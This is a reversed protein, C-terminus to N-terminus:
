YWGSYRSFHDTTLSGDVIEMLVLQGHDLYYITADGFESFDLTVPVAFTQEPVLNLEIWEGQEWKVHMGVQGGDPVAGEPVTLTVPGAELVIGEGPDLFQQSHALSFGRASAMGPLVLIAMIFVLLALARAQRLHWM